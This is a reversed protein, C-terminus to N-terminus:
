KRDQNLVLLVARLWENFAPQLELLVDRQIRDLGIQRDNARKSADIKAERDGRLWEIVVPVAAAIIGGIVV